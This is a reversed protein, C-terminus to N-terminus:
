ESEAFKAIIAEVKKSDFGGIEDSYVLRGLYGNDDYWKKKDEWDEAYKPDNELRGLHEWYFTDGEETTITFDPLKWESGDKSYLREEYKYLINKEWLMNAIILESKSRVYDGKSTRHILDNARYKESTFRFKFTSTNRLLIASRGSNAASLLPMIDKQLFLILKSRSRTLATYLLERSILGTEERPLILFVTDFESGQSKHVTIAYGLELNQDIISKRYWLSTDQNKSPLTVGIATRKRDPGPVFFVYGLQGNYVDHAVGESYITKNAIQIVKDETAFGELFGYADISKRRYLAQVATNLATTGYYEGRYPSLIQLYEISFRKPPEAGNATKIGLIDSFSLERGLDKSNATVLASLRALLKENLDSQNNWFVVELDNGLTKGNEIENLLTDFDKDPDETYMSALKLIKSNRSIQRCNIELRRVAGQHESELYHVIDFFPRGFGIPPLQNRDGVLILRKLTPWQIARFLHAMLELDVMSSEDVIINREEILNRKNEIFRYTKKALWGHTKLARHITMTVDAMETYRALNERAKGTPALLLFSSGPERTKIERILTRLVTTKGTGAAGTIVSLKRRFSNEVADSQQELVKSYVDDPINQHDSSLKSKWDVGSEPGQKALLKNVRDRIVEEATALRRLYVFTQGDHDLFLLKGEKEYFDRRAKVKEPSILVKRWDVQEEAIKDLVESLRLLCSGSSGSESELLEIMLARLRRPDDLDADSKRKLMAHPIMGNDIKYFGIVDDEDEGHYEECIIYPNDSIDKISSTIGTSETKESVIKEIQDAALDFLCLRKLLDRKPASYEKWVAALEKQWDASKVGDLVEVVFDRLDGKHSGSLSRIFAIGDNMGLVELVAGLGPYPGRESWTKGLESNLWSIRADWDGPAVKADIRRIATITKSILECADDDSLPRSVYKFRRELEGTIEVLIPELENPKKGAALYEQYPIRVGQGTDYGHRITRSWVRDGAFQKQNDTFGEFNLFPGFKKMLSIGVLVYRKRESNLPNDYNLYFFVLSHGETFQDFYNKVNEERQEYEPVLKRTKPDYMQDMPWTGVSYEPLVEIRPKANKIFPHVHVHPTERPSFANITWTCPPGKGSKAWVESCPKGAVGEEWKTVKNKRIFDGQVSFQASCYTNEAPKDCVCGDWGRDHWVLRVSIHQM